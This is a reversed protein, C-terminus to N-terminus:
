MTTLFNLLDTKGTSMFYILLGINCLVTLWFIARFPQKKTKHRFHQQALVAGLWGGLLAFLHLTSEPVRWHNKKAARKDKWYLGYTILSLTLYITLIIPSLKGWFVSLVLLIVAVFLFVIAPNPESKRKINKNIDTPLFANIACRRGKSDTSLEFTVVQNAQPRNQKNKFASIHIFVRHKGANPTIFGYGKDDNWVTIIGKQKM